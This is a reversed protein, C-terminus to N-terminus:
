GDIKKEGISPQKSAFARIVQELESLHVPKSMYENAGANLCKERDGTMALATIAIIPIQNVLPDSIARVRRIAELGDMGPMQIDALIVSPKIQLALDIMEWGNHAQVITFNRSKLFDSITDLVIQNDDVVLIKWQGLEAKDAARQKPSSNFLRSFEKEVDKLTFPKVLCGAAGHSLFYNYDDEISSIIVVINATRPDRKLDKLVDVGDRDPLHLDLLIVDPQVKIATEFAGVGSNYTICDINMQALYGCIQNAHLNNDEILLCRSVVQAAPLVSKGEKEQEDGQYWPLSVTFRSGKNVESEVSVSGGHLESLKSVLSLGLGTGSQQRSLSSDLQVFPTFLRKLDGEKIGIGEDWVTFQLIRGEEHGKVELGLAGGEPTFKVANSLLNVLIQKVRRPDAQIVASALNSSFGVKQHKRQAMGKVLQLSAQCIEAVSCPEIQLDLKDAEIKSLDLIDNILELLHRGSSEIDKLAHKQNENLPGYTELQLAESLGLVGTLPTRLEHSMSALFEDKLQAAKELSINAVRLEDRSNRLELEAQRRQTIDRFIGNVRVLGTDDRHAVVSGEVVVSQGSKTQFIVEIRLPKQNENLGALITRCHDHFETEVVDFMSMQMAEESTYGLTECWARNVYTFRCHEDVTQILDNASDLFDQLNAQSVKLAQQVKKTETIDVLTTRSMLYNGENDNVATASVLAPLISGDRRVFDLELDRLWGRQKYIPFNKHFRRISDPTLFDQVPRGIMEERQYGLWDLETQNVVIINGQADLSHYGAPANEYLDRVEKTREEVRQELTRNLELLEQQTTKLENINLSNVLVNVVQGNADHIPQLSTRYWEVKGNIDIPSETVISRDERFARQASDLQRSAFPEGFLEHITKGIFVEPTGGLNRAAVDNMYLFKGEQDVTAVVNDLSEILGRYKEESLKLEMETNRSLMATVFQQAIGQIRELDNASFESTRNLDLFGILHNQITLPILLVSKIGLIKHVKPIFKRITPSQIFERMTERIGQDGTIIEPKGSRAIRAFNGNGSLPIKIPLKDLRGGVVKEIAKELQDGIDLNSMLLYAEREDPLCTLVATCDFMRRLGASVMHIIDTLEDGRNKAQNIKQILELDEARQQLQAETECRLLANALMNAAMQILLITDSSWVRKVSVLDFGLFGLLRNKARLPVVLLSQVGQAQLAERELSAEDPMEGVDTVHIIEDRDLKGMWWPFTDNPLEQLNGIQSQIGKACWEHTNSMHSDNIRFIYTRDANEYEGLDRLVAGFEDDIKELELNIFQTSFRTLIELLNLYHEREQYQGRLQAEAQKSESNDVSHILVGTQTPEISLEFWGITGDPYVFENEMRSPLRELLCKKILQYVQTAEIGPWMATYEKGIMERRSRRNHVEAASNIYVYRWDFDLIQIGELMSELASRYRQESRNLTELSLKREYWLGLMGALNDLLNQEEPLIFPAKEMYEVQILGVEAQRGITVSAKLLYPSKEDWNKTRYTKGDIEICAAALAPFQMAPPISDVLAQYVHDPSLGSNALLQGANFLCTLEKLREGLQWQLIKHATIDQDTGFLAVVNGQDDLRANGLERIHRVEGSRTVLRFEIDFSKGDKKIRDNVARVRERDEPHVRSYFVEVDIKENQSDIDYIRFLEETWRAKKTQIDFTWSGLRAMTQSTALNSRSELLDNEYQKRQTIDLAASLLCPKGKFDITEISALLYRIDGSKKRYRVELNTVKKQKELWKRMEKRDNPDAWIGLELVSKGIMEERSYGVMECHAVNADIIKGDEIQTIIMPAPNDHFIKLFRNESEQAALRLRTNEVYMAITQAAIDLNNISLITCNLINVKEVTARCDDAQACIALIKLNPYADQVKIAFQIGTDLHNTLDVLLIASLEGERKLRISEPKRIPSWTLCAVTESSLKGALLDRQNKSFQYSFIRFTQGTM